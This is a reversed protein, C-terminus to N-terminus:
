LQVDCWGRRHSRFWIDHKGSPFPYAAQPTMQLPLARGRKERFVDWDLASVMTETQDVAEDM